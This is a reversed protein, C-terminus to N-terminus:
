KEESVIFTSPDSPLPPTDSDDHIAEGFSREMLTTYDAAAKQAPSEEESFNDKKMGGASIVKATFKRKGALSSGFSSGKSADKQLCCNKYKKGSGCKCPDNRGMKELM